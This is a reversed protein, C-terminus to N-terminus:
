DSVERSVLRLIGSDYQDPIRTSPILIAAINGCRYELLYSVINVCAVNLQMLRHAKFPRNRLVIYKREDLGTILLFERQNAILQPDRILREGFILPHTRRTCTIRYVPLLIRLTLSGHRINRSHGEAVCKVEKLLGSQFHYVFAFSPDNVL